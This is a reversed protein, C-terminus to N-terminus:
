DLYKRLTEGALLEEIIYFTGDARQGMEHVIVVNPHRIRATAEAERRFRRLIESDNTYRPHLIKLAVHRGILLDRAEYVSSMAGEGILRLLVFKSGIVIGARLPAGMPAVMYELSDEM